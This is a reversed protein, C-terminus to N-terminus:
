TIYESMGDPPKETCGEHSYLGAIEAPISAMTLWSRAIVRSTSMKLLWGVSYYMKGVEVTSYFRFKCVIANQARNKCLESCWGETRGNVPGWWAMTMHMCWKIVHRICSKSWVLKCRTRPYRALRSVMRSVSWLGDRSILLIVVFRSLHNGSTLLTM